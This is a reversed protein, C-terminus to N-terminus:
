QYLRELTKCPQSTLCVKLHMRYCLLSWGLIKSTCKSLCRTRCTGKHTTRSRNKEIESNSITELKKKYQELPNKPLSSYLEAARKLLVTLTWSNETTFIYYDDEKPTNKSVKLFEESKIKHFFYLGFTQKSLKKIIVLEPFYSNSCVYEMNDKVSNVIWGSDSIAKKIITEEISNFEM